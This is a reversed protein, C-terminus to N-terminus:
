KIKKQIEGFIQTKLRKSQTLKVSFHLMVDYDVLIDHTSNKWLYTNDTPSKTYPKITFEKGHFHQIVGIAFQKNRTQWAVRAGAYVTRPPCIPHGSTSLSTYGSLTPPPPLPPIPVLFSHYFLSLMVAENKYSQHVAADEEQFLAQYSECLNHAPFLRAAKFHYWNSIFYNIFFFLICVQFTALMSKAKPLKSFRVRPWETTAPFRKILSIAKADYNLSTVREKAWIKVKSDHDREIKFSHPKKIGHLTYLYPSLFEKWGWVWKLDHQKPAPISLFSSLLARNAEDVTPCPKKKMKTTISFLQDIDEHTHGVPLFSLHITTFIHLHVLWCLCGLMFQNKNESPCNDLKCYILLFFIFCLM